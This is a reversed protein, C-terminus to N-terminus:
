NNKHIYLHYKSYEEHNLKDLDSLTDKPMEIVIPGMKVKLADYIYKSDFFHSSFIKTLNETHSTAHM